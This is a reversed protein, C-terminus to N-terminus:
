HAVPLLKQAIDLARGLISIDPVQVDYDKNGTENEIKSQSLDPLTSTHQLSFDAHLNVFLFAGISFVAIFPLFFRPLRKQKMALVNFWYM